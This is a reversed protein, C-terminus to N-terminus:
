FGCAAACDSSACKMAAETIADMPGLLDDCVQFDRNNDALCQAREGCASDLKCAVTADCCLQKGCATCTDDTGLPACPDEQCDEATITVLPDSPGNGGEGGVPGAGGEGMATAVPGEGRVPPIAGPLWVSRDPPASALTPPRNPQANPKPANMSECSCAIVSYLKMMEPIAIGAMLNGCADAKGTAKYKGEVIKEWATGPPACVGPAPRPLGEVVCDWDGIPNPNPLFGCGSVLLGVTLLVISSAIIKNM